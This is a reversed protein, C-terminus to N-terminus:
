GKWDKFLRTDLIKVKYGEKYPVAALTLLGEPLRVGVAEWNGAKPQILLVDAM